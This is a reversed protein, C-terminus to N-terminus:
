RSFEDSSYFKIPSNYRNTCVLSVDNQKQKISTKTNSIYSLCLAIVWFTSAVEPLNQLFTLCWIFIMLIKIWSLIDFINSVRWASQHILQLNRENTSCCALFLFRTMEQSDCLPCTSSACTANININKWRPFFIKTISQTIWMCPWHTCHVERAKTHSRKEPPQPHFTTCM